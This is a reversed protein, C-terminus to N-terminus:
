ALRFRGERLFTITQAIAIAHRPLATHSAKVIIHYAMGSLM